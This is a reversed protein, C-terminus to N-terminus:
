YESHVEPKIKEIEAYAEKFEKTVHPEIPMQKAIYAMCADIGTWSYKKYIPIVWKLDMSDILVSDACAYNFFDSANMQIGFSGKVLSILDDHLESKTDNNTNSETNTNEVELYTKVIIYLITLLIVDTAILKLILATDFWVLGILLMLLTAFLFGGIREVNEQLTGSFNIIRYEEWLNNLKKIVPKM